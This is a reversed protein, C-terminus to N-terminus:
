RESLNAQFASIPVDARGEPAICPGAALCSPAAQSIHLRQLRNYPKKRSKPKAEESVATPAARHFRIGLFVPIRSGNKL